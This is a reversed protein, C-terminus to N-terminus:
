VIVEFNVDENSGMFPNLPSNHALGASFSANLFRNIYNVYLNCRVLSRQMYIFKQLAM